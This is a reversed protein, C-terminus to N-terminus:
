ECDVNIKGASGLGGQMNGADRRCYATRPSRASIPVGECQLVFTEEGADADGYICTFDCSLKEDTANTVMLFAASRDRTATCTASFGGVELTSQSITGDPHLRFTFNVPDEGQEAGNEACASLLLGLVIMATLKLRM